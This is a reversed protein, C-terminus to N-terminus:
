QVQKSQHYKPCSGRPVRRFLLGSRAGHFHSLFLKCYNDRPQNALVVVSYRQGIFIELQDVELPHVEVGDAEIVMM